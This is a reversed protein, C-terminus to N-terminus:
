QASQACVLNTKRSLFDMKKSDQLNIENKKNKEFFLLVKTAYKINQRILRGIILWFAKGM